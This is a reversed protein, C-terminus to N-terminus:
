LGSEGVSAESPQNRERNCLLLFMGAFLYIGLGGSFLAAEGMGMIITGCFCIRVMTDEKLNRTSKSRIMGYLLYCVLILIVTGYSALIDLHTNHLQSMGTGRSIQSYAGWIPSASYARLAPAWVSMRADLGKGESVMFSFLEQLRANEMVMMYVAVFLIPWVSILLSFWKPLRFGNRTLYLIICLITEAMITMLCNRSETEWVFWCVAAALALHWLKRFVSKGQFVQILEGTYICMLFLATLNPNTFGFTLYNSIRSGIMYLTPSNLAYMIVFFVAISSNIFLLFKETRDDIRLKCAAQFYVLTMIFMVYKKFYAFSIATEELSANIILNGLSLGITLILIADTWTVKRITGSLWLLVVLFFTMGFLASSVSEFGLVTSCVIGAAFLYLIRILFTDIQMLRM